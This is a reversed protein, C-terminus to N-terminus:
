VYIAYVPMYLMDKGKSSDTKSTALDEHGQRQAEAGALRLVEQAQGFFHAAMACDSRKLNQQALRRLHQVQAM